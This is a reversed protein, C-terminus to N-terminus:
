RYAGGRYQVCGIIPGGSRQACVCVALVRTLQTPAM